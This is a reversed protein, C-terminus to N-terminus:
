LAEVNVGEGQVGESENAVYPMICIHKSQNVSQKFISSRISAMSKNYLVNYPVNYLLDMVSRLLHLKLRVHIYRSALTHCVSPRVSWPVSVDTAVAPM